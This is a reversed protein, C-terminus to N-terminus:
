EDKASNEHRRTPAVADRALVAIENETLAGDYLRVEDMLGNYGNWDPHHGIVIPRDSDQLRAPAPRREAPEGNLYLAISVGNYVGVVHTWQNTTAPGSVKIVDGWSNRPFAASFQYRPGDLLLMYADPAYWKNVITQLGTTKAPKVRAVISMADTFHYAPQDPVEFRSRGDFSAAKGMETPVCIIEGRARAVAKGLARDPVNDSACSDRFQWWAVLKAPRVVPKSPPDDVPLTKTSPPPPVDDDIRQPPAYGPGPGNTNPDTQAAGGPGPTDRCASTGAAFFFVCLVFLFFHRNMGLSTRM